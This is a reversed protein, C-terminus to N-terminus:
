EPQGKSYLGNDRVYRWVADTVLYRFPSGSAARRRIDTASVDMGPVNMMYVSELADAGRSTQKPLASSVKEVPFGPRNAAIFKAEDLLLEPSKWTNIELISDAGVIFFLETDPGYIDRLERLTDITYSPGERELEIETVELCANGAIALRVMELRHAAPTHPESAKHPPRASPVLVVRDLQFQFRAEDAIVLHAIHIPDFTGGM